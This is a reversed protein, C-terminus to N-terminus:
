IGRLYGGDCAIAQGTVYGAKDSVLFASLASLEEVEGLRKAPVLPTMTEEKLGLERLRDTRTFGPLVANITIGFSAIENSLSKTLGLLGARLGNSITLHPMAEQAAVSTVLLIRGWRREKMGPLVAQISDVTSMWLEQFGLEWQATNIESFDGKPPGGTNVVLIDVQGLQDQVTKVLTLAAGKKGLDCPVSLSAGLKAAAAKLRSENRACIAVRAGEEILSQAIGYGIGTSAGMVLANKNKINLNM